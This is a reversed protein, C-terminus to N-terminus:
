GEILKIGIVKKGKFKLIDTEKQTTPFLEDGYIDQLLLWEFLGGAYVHINTFGLTTLQRFKKIISDDTSNEGYIIIRIDIETNNLFSNLISVENDSTLSGKILCQQRNCDLTNILLTSKSNITSQIDEYNIKSISLSNGM